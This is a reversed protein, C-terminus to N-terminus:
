KCTTADEPLPAPAELMVDRAMNNKPFAIYERISQGGGMVVCLRALGIAIGAHPPTGYTLAKLFFGFQQDMREPTFGLQGLVKRQLAADHIRVSGGGVEVGNIVLDYAQARVQAPAKDLLPIDEAHPAAFPHHMAKYRGAEEEWELLPFDTVWLPAFATNPALQLVKAVQLRLEGLCPHLTNGQKEALFLLAAGPQLHYAQLSSLLEESSYWKGISSSVKGDQGYKIWFLARAGQAQLQANFQDLQKRTLLDGGPVAIGKLTVEDQWLPCGNDGLRESLDLFPMGWRLDPKDSGYTAIAEAYTMRPFAAFEIGKVKGFLYGILEEFFQLVDEQTVFSLECDLQTFEPQRDARLDEDRFCQAMQYYRDMGAVMLLQKFLQPSQPLAYYSHPHLRSPVVFDRAGEPTSRILTPTTIELFSAEDLFHRINKSVEHRFQLQRQLPPRRLDLYRYQMRLEEGGDTKEEILFPPLSAKSLLKLASVQLEIAGTSIHPNTATRALVRGQVQIVDERGLTRTKELLAESCKGAELVLQTVGHRDRLDIWIIKGKDRIRQVWGCLTAEQDQHPPRLAGCHHTRLM